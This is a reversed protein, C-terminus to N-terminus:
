QGNHTEKRGDHHVIVVPRGIKVAYHITYWTGSGGQRKNANPCAYLVDSENVIDRNRPLYAKVERLENGRKFARLDDSLPPHVVIHLGLRRAIEHSDADAGVCDGHHLAYAGKLVLATEMVGALAQYQVPTCGDRTGTFGIRM